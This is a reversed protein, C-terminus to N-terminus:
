IKNLHGQRIFWMASVLSIYFFLYHYYFSQISCHLSFPRTNLVWKNNLKQIYLQCFVKRGIIYINVSSFTNPLMNEKKTIHHYLWLTNRLEFVLGMVILFAMFAFYIDNLFIHMNVNGYANNINIRNISNYMFYASFICRYLCKM